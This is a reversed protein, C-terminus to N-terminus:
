TPRSTQCATSRRRPTRRFICCAARQRRSPTAGFTPRETTPGCCHLNGAAITAIARVRRRDARVRRRRRQLRRSVPRRNQPQHDTSKRGDRPPSRLVRRADAVRGVAGAWNSPRGLVLRGHQYLESRVVHYPEAHNSLDVVRCPAETRKGAPPLDFAQRCRRHFDACRGALDSRRSDDRRDLRDILWGAGSSSTWYSNVIYCLVGGPRLVDLGRHLFYYWLDIRAQRWRKGLPSEALRAFQTACGTRPSVAPQRDRHRFRRRCRHSSLRERFRRALKPHRHGRRQTPMNSTAQGSRMGVRFPTPMAGTAVVDSAPRFEPGTLADGIRINCAVTQLTSKRHEVPPAIREVLQQRLQSSRPPTSISASCNIACSPSVTPGIRNRQQSLRDFAALLFVGEGCAPDLIRLPAAAPVVINRTAALWASDFMDRAITAPTYYRGHTRRLSTPAQPSKSTVAMDARILRVTKRGSRRRRCNEDAPRAPQDKQHASRGEALPLDFLVPRQRRGSQEKVEKGDSSSSGIVQGGKVGGGAMAINFRDRTTTAAAAPISKPTRGFEGMWVVLTNDLQGRQKLDAILTAM